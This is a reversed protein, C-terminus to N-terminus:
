ASSSSCRLLLAMAQRRPFFPLLFPFFLTFFRFFGRRFFCFVRSEEVEKKRGRGERVFVWFFLRAFINELGRLLWWSRM